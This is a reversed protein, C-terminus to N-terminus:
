PTAVENADSFPSQDRGDSGKSGGRAAWAGPASPPGARPAAPDVVAGLSGGHHFPALDSPSVPPAASTSRRHAAAATVIPAPPMAHRDSFPSTPMMPSTDIVTHLTQASHRGPQGLSRRARTGPADDEDSSIEDLTPSAAEHRRARSHKSAGSASPTLTSTRASASASASTPDMEQALATAAWISDAIQRQQPDLPRGSQSQPRSIRQAAARHFTSGISFTPSIARHDAVTASPPRVATGPPADYPERELAPVPPTATPSDDPSNNASSKVSIVAAKGRIGRQAVPHRYVTTAISTRGLSPAVSDRNFSSDSLGSATSSRLDPLFFHADPHHAAAPSPVSLPNVYQQPLPPIPPVLLGPTTPPSRNTVGPIYAIEIINSGRTLRSGHSGVTHVSVRDPARITSRHDGGKEMEPVDDDEEDRGDDDDDAYQQRRSKICCWWVLCTLIAMFVVGGVVGGAIAGVNAGSRKTGSNVAGPGSADVAICQTFPCQSCSASSTTAM